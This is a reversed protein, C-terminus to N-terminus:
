PTNSSIPWQENVPERGCTSYVTASSSYLLRFCKARAMEQCLCITGTVNNDYYELPKSISENVSKLAAFHIVGEVHHSEFIARLAASDRLDAAYFEPKVGTIQEIKLLVDEDANSLNDVIVVEHGAELLSVCTHSGIFGLGGTVLIKM